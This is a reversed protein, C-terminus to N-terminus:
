SIKKNKKVLIAGLGAIMVGLGAFADPSVPMGTKPLNKNENKNSAVPNITENPKVVEDPKSIEGPKVNDEPKAVEDKKVNDEPKVIEGPKNNDEPKVVEDNKVDKDEILINTDVKPVGGNEKWYKSMADRMVINTNVMDTAKSFDYKDGGTSMFDNITLTYIKDKELEKGDNLKISSVKGSERNYVVKIGAFQGWGFGDTNIGHEIVKVVDEGKLKLTVLTNDFPLIEYMDGLTVNGKELTRRIGGGNCLGIDTKGIQRMTEAVVVGLPTINGKREEHNLEEDLTTVVEALMPALEKNHAKIKEDVDKDVPLDKEKGKFIEVNQEINKIKKNKDFTFTLKGLGRGNCGGEVVPVSGVQGCVFIHNHAAIVADVEGTKAIEAAEGTVEKTAENQYAACHTLAVVADAGKERVIPGWKKITDVPSKFEVEAVNEALTTTATEPTAVGIFGIKIGNREVIKYPKAYDAVEETGKKVINAALFPFNGEESWKAINKSGWDFEHNGIVSAELGIGKLMDTIPAGVKINSIATGQYLDGGAVPIVGYTDNAKDKYSNIVGALKAAGVNKGSELANGHFDNFSLVDIVKEGDKASIEEAYVVKMNTPMIITMMLFLSTLFAVLKKQKNGM